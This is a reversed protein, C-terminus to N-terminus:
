EGQLRRCIYGGDTLRDRNGRYRQVGGDGQGDGDDRHRWAGLTVGRQWASHGHHHSVSKQAVVEGHFMAMHTFCVEGKRDWIVKYGVRFSSLFLMFGFSLRLCLSLRFSYVLLFVLFGFSFWLDLDFDYVWFFSM